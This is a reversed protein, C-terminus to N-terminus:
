GALEDFCIMEDIRGPSAGFVNASQQVNPDRDFRKTAILMIKFRFIGDFWQRVELIHLAEGKTGLALAVGAAYGREILRASVIEIYIVVVEFIDYPRRERM